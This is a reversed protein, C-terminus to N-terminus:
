SCVHSLLSISKMEKCQDRQTESCHITQKRLEREREREETVTEGFMVTNNNVVDMLRRQKM